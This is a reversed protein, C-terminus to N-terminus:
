QLMEMDFNTRQEIRQAEVYKGTAKFTDVREKLEKKINAIATEQKEKAIVFHKEPFIIVKQLEEIIDGKM